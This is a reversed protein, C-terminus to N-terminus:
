PCPNVPTWEAALREGEAIQAPTMSARLADFYYVVNQEGAGAAITYWM